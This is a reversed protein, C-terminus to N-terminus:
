PSSAGAAAAARPDARRHARRVQVGRLPERRRGDQGHRHVLSPQDLQQALAYMVKDDPRRRRADEIMRDVSAPPTTRVIEPAMEPPLVTTGTWIGIEDKFILPLGTLCLMLLFLTCALSTWKHVRYWAKLSRATM